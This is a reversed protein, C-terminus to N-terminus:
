AEDDDKDRKELTKKMEAMKEGVRDKVYQPLEASNFIEYLMDIEALMVTTLDDRSYSNKEREDLTATLKNLGDALAELTRETATLRHAIDTAFSDTTNKIESAKEGIGKVGAALSRVGGELTPMMGKKYILMLAFSLACTIVSFIEDAGSAISDYILSFVNEETAHTDVNNSNEGLDSGEIDVEDTNEETFLIENEVENTIGGGTDLAKEQPSLLGADTDLAKEEPHTFSFRNILTKELSTGRVRTLPASVQAPAPERCPLPCTPPGSATSPTVTFSTETASAEASATVSCVSLACILALSVAIGLRTLFNTRKKM